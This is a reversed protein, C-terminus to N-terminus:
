FTGQFRYKAKRSIYFLHCCRWCHRQFSQWGRWLGPSAVVNLIISSTLYTQLVCQVPHISQRKGSPQSPLKSRMHQVHQRVLTTTSLMCCAEELSASTVHRPGTAITASGGCTLRMTQSMHKAWTSMRTVWANSWEDCNEQEEKVNSWLSPKFNWRWEKPTILSDM